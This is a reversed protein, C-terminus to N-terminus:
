KLRIDENHYRRLPELYGLENPIVQGKSSPQPGRGVFFQVGNGGKGDYFFKELMITKSDLVLVKDAEINNSKGELHSVEKTGPPEFGEPIYLAGYAEYETLDYVAFWKLQDIRKGNPLTLTFEDNLYRQLVNTKGYENPVIDGKRGPQNSVGVM